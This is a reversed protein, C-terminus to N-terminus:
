TGPSATPCSPVGASGNPRGPARRVKGGSALSPRQPRGRKGLSLPPSAFVLNTTEIAILAVLLPTAM